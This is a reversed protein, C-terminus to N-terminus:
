EGGIRFPGGSLFPGLRGVHTMGKRPKRRKVRRKMRSDSLTPMGNEAALKNYLELYHRAWEIQGIAAHEVMRERYGKLRNRVRRKQEEETPEAKPQFPHPELAYYPRENKYPANLPHDEDFMEPFEKRVRQGGQRVLEEALDPSDLEKLHEALEELLEFDSYGFNKSGLISYGKSFVEGAEEKAKQKEIAEQQLREDEAKKKEDRALRARKEAEEASRQESIEKLFAEKEKNSEAAKAASVRSNDKATSSAERALAKFGRELDGSLPLAYKSTVSLAWSPVTEKGGSDRRRQRSERSVRGLKDPRDLGKARLHKIALGEAWADEEKKEEKKRPVYLATFASVDKPAAFDYMLMSAVARSLSDAGDIKDRWEDALSIVDKVAFPYYIGKATLFGGLEKNETAGNLDRVIKSVGPDRLRGARVSSFPFVDEYLPSAKGDLYNQLDKVFDGSLEKDIFSALGEKGLFHIKADRLNDEKEIRDYLLRAMFLDAWKERNKELFKSADVQEKAETNLPKGSNAPVTLADRIEKGTIKPKLTGQEGGYPEGTLPNIREM